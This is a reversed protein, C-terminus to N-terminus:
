EQPDRFRHGDRWRSQCAIGHDQEDSGLNSAVPFHPARKILPSARPDSEKSGVGRCAADRLTLRQNPSPNLCHLLDECAEETIGRITVMPPMGQPPPASRGGEVARWIHGIENPPPPPFPQGRRHLVSEAVRVRRHNPSQHKWPRHTALSRTLPQSHQQGVQPTVGHISIGFPLGRLRRQGPAQPAQPIEEQYPHPAADLPFPLRPTQNPNKTRGRPTKPRRRTWLLRRNGGGRLGCRGITRPFMRWLERRSGSRPDPAALPLQSRLSGALCRSTACCLDVAVTFRPGLPSDNTQATGYRDLPMTRRARLHAKTICFGSPRGGLPPM